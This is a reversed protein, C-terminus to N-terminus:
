IFGQDGAARLWRLGEPIDRKIRRGHLYKTGLQFQARANGQNALPLLESFEDKEPFLESLPTLQSQAQDISVTALVCVLGIFLAQAVTRKQREFMPPMM